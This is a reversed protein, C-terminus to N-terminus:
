APKRSPSRARAPEADNMPRSWASLDRGILEGLEAVQPAFEDTLARRLEPDMEARAAQRSNANVLRDRVRHTLPMARLTGFLGRLPRPPAFILRQVADRARAVPEPQLRVPRGRLDPDVGLFELTTAYVARPDAVLDDFVIVHIAIGASLTSVTGCSNPSASAQRYYLAEPRLCGRSGSAPRRDDEAGSRRAFDALDERQNFVLQSHQSYMVDVPNRLM